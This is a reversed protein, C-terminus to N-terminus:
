ENRLLIVSFSRSIANLGDHLLGIEVTPEYVEARGAGAASSRGARSPRRVM